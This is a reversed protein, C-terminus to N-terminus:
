GNAREEPEGFASSAATATATATLQEPRESPALASPDDDPWFQRFMEWQDPYQRIVDEMADFMRQTVRIVDARKDGTNQPFIPPMAGLYYTSSYNKDYRCYGPLITAGSKLALQAIGGPVYCTKGFFTIPVGEEPPVPRDVAVAVVRGEQL